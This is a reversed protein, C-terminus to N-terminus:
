TVQELDWPLLASMWAAHRTAPEFSVCICSAGCAQASAAQSTGPPKNEEVQKRGAKVDLLLKARACLGQARSIGNQAGRSIDPVSCLVHMKTECLGPGWGQHQSKGAIVAQHSPTEEGGQAEM